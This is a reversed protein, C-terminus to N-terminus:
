NDGIATMVVDRLVERNIASRCIREFAKRKFATELCEENRCLYFGRGDNKREQDATIVPGRATFRILENQPFSQRCGICRRMPGTQHRRLQETRQRIM